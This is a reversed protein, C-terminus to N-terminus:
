TNTLTLAFMVSTNMTQMFNANKKKRVVLKLKVLQRELHKVNVTIVIYLLHHTGASKMRPAVMILRRLILPQTQYEQVASILQTAKM